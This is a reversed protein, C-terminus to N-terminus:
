GRYTGGHAPYQDGGWSVVMITDLGAEGAGGIGYGPEEQGYGAAKLKDLQKGLRRRTIIMHLTIVIAILSGWTGGVRIYSSFTQSTDPPYKTFQLQVVSSADLTHEASQREDIVAEEVVSYEVKKSLHGSINYTGQPLRFEVLGTDNTFGNGVPVGNREVVIDVHDLPQGDDDVAQVSVSYTGAPLCKLTWSLNEQCNVMAVVLRRGDNGGGILSMGPM